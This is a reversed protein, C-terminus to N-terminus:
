KQNEDCIYKLFEMDFHSVHGYVLLVPLIVPLKERKTLVVLGVQIM